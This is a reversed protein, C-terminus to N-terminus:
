ELLFKSSIGVSILFEVEDAPGLPLTTSRPICATQYIDGEAAHILWEIWHDIFADCNSYYAHDGANYYGCRGSPKEGSHSENQESADSAPAIWLSAIMMAVLLGGRVGMCLHPTWATTHRIRRMM